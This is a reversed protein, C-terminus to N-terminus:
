IFFVFFGIETKKIQIKRIYKINSVFLDLDHTYMTTYRCSELSITLVMPRTDSTSLAFVVTVLCGTGSDKPNQLIAMFMLALRGVTGL